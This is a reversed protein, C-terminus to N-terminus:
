GCGTSFNRSPIAQSYAPSVSINGFSRIPGPTTKLHLSKKCCYEREGRKRHSPDSLARLYM